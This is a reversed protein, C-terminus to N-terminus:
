CSKIRRWLVRNGARRAWGLAVMGTVAMVAALANFLIDVPDFVRFPLLLQIAEDIAGVLATALIALVAPLPVRRGRAAREALAEYVFVALISYEILHSREPITLRLFFMLYVAALGLAVGLELGGPRTKLGQTLVTLGVLLMCLLFAVASLTQNYLFGSLTSALLLTSYIGVTVFLAGAWLNRERRSSFFSVPAIRDTVPAALRATNSM